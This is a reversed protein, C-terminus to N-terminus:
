GDASTCDTFEVAGASQTLPNKSSFIITKYENQNLNNGLQMCVDFFHIEKKLSM